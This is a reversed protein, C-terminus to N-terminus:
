GTRARIARKGDVKADIVRFTLNIREGVANREKPIQHRYCRQTSGSMLLLSGHELKLSEIPGQDGVHRLQFSRPAGLSVSAIVPEPGLERENDAHWSLSDQGSRYRNLLVSNFTIKTASKLRDRLDRLRPTWPTPDNKIGSYTYSAGKDGYWATLRPVLMTRGYMKIEDQKWHVESLLHNFLEDAYAPELFYPDYTVVGDREIVIRPSDDIYDADFLRPQLM